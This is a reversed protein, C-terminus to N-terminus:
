LWQNSDGPVSIVLVSVQRLRQCALIVHCLGGISIDRQMHWKHLLPNPPPHSAGHVHRRYLLHGDRTLRDRNKQHILSNRFKFERWGALPERESM